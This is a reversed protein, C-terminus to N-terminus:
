FLASPVVAVTAARQPLPPKHLWESSSGDTVSTSRSAHRSPGRLLKLSRHSSAAEEDNEKEREVAGSVGYERPALCDSIPSLCLPPSLPQAAQQAVTSIPVTQARCESSLLPLPSNTLRVGGEMPSGSPQGVRQCRASAGSQLESWDIRLPARRRARHSRDTLPRRSSSEGYVVCLDSVVSSSRVSLASGFSASLSAPSSDASSWCADSESSRRALPLPTPVYCLSPSPSFGALAAATGSDSSSASSSAGVSTCSEARSQTSWLSLLSQRSRRARHSSLSAVCSPSPVSSVSSSQDAQSSTVASAGSCAASSDSTHQGHHQSNVGITHASHWLQSTPQTPQAPPAPGDLAISRESRRRSLFLTGRRASSVSHSRVLGASVAACPASVCAGGLPSSPPLCVCAGDSAASIDRTPCPASPSHDPSLSTSVAPSKPPPLSSSPLPSSSHFPMSALLEEEEGDSDVDSIGREQDAATHQTYLSATLTDHRCHLTTPLPLVLERGNTDGLTSSAAKDDNHEMGGANAAVGHTLLPPAAPLTVEDGCEATSKMGGGAVRLVGATSSAADKSVMPTADHPESSHPWDISSRTILLPRSSYPHRCLSLGDASSRLLAPVLM